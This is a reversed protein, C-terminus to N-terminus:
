QGVSFNRRAGYLRNILCARLAAIFHKKKKVIFEFNEKAAFWSDMLVYRFKLQNMMCTGVMARLHENKTVTSARKMKGIQKDCFQLPKKAVEFAVPISLEASHYFANLM